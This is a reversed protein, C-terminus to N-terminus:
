NNILIKKTFHDSGGTLEVFYIGNPMPILPITKINKGANIESLEKRFKIQGLLDYVRIVPNKMEEYVEITLILSNNTANFQIIDNDNSSSVIGVGTPLTYYVKMGIWDIYANSQNPSMNLARFEVGFTTDNVIGPTFPYGWMSTDGGYIYLSDNASWLGVLPSSNGFPTNDFIINILSDVISNPFGGKKMIQVEIGTITANAPINFHYNTATLARTYYCASQFCQGHQLMANSAFLSDIHEVNSYNAWDTGPCSLCAAAPENASTPSNPGQSQAFSMNISLLVLWSVLLTKIKKYIITKM